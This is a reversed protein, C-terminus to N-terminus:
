SRPVMMRETSEASRHLNAGDVRNNSSTDERTQRRIRHSGPARTNLM